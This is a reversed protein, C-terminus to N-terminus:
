ARAAITLFPAPQLRKGPSRDIARFWALYSDLYKTAVGHFRRLWEKLRSDYANVNQVHYPGIVRVGASLNVAHHEVGLAKAAGALTRSGDTCLIADLSLIPTLATTVHPADDANFIFDATAGSRDRAM